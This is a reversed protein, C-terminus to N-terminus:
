SKETVIKTLPIDYIRSCMDSFGSGWPYASYQYIEESRAMLHFDMFTDLIGHGPSDNNGCQGLHVPTNAILVVSFNKALLEKIAINDSILLVNRGWKPVILERLCDEVAPVVSVDAGFTHDGMRMHVVCFRDLAFESLLTQLRSNVDVKPSIRKCIFYRCESDMSFLPVAHTTVYSTGRLVQDALFPELKKIDTNFFEYIPQEDQLDLIDCPEIYRSLPHRSFDVQLEFNLLQSLQFLAVTGRLFDGFGPPQAVSDCSTRYAHVVLPKNM